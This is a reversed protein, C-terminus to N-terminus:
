NQAVYCASFKLASRIKMIDRPVFHRLRTQKPLALAVRQGFAQSVSHACYVLADIGSEPVRVALTDHSTDLGIPAGAPPMTTSLPPPSIPLHLLARHAPALTHLLNRSVIEARWLWTHLMAALDPLDRWHRVLLKGIDDELIHKVDGTVLNKALRLQADALVNPSSHEKGQDRWSKDAYIAPQHLVRLCPVLLNEQLLM